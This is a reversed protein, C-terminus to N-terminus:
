PKRTIKRLGRLLHWSLVEAEAMVADKLMRELKINM